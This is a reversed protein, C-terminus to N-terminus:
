RRPIHQRPQENLLIHLHSHVERVLGVGLRRSLFLNRLFSRVKVFLPMSFVERRRRWLQLSLGPFAVGDSRKSKSNSGDLRLSVTTNRAATTRPSEGFLPFGVRKRWETYLPSSRAQSSSLLAAQLRSSEARSESDM